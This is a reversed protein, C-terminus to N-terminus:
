RGSKQEERDMEERLAQTMARYNQETVREPMVPPVAQVQEVPPPTTIPPTGTICGGCTLLIAVVVIGLVGRM